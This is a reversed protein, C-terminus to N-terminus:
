RNILSGVSKEEMDRTWFSQLDNKIWIGDRIGTPCNELDTKAATSKGGYIPPFNVGIEEMTAFYPNYYKLFIFFNFFIFFSNENSTELILKEVFFFDMQKKCVTWIIRLLIYLNMVELYQM